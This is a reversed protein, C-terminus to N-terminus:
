HVQFEVNDVHIWSSCMDFEFESIKTGSSTAVSQLRHDGHKKAAAKDKLFQSSEKVSFIVDMFIPLNFNKLVVASAYVIIITRQHWPMIFFRLKPCCLDHRDFRMNRYVWRGGSITVWQFGGFITQVHKFLEYLLKLCRLFFCGRHSFRVEIQSAVRHPDLSANYGRIEVTEGRLCISIWKTRLWDMSNYSLNFM